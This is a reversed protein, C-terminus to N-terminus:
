NAASVAQKGEGDRVSKRGDMWGRVVMKGTAKLAGLEAVCGGAVELELGELSALTREARAVGM